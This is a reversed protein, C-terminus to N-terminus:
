RRSGARPGPRARARRPRRTGAGAPPRSRSPGGRAAPSRLRRSASASTSTSPRSPRRRRRLELRTPSLAASASRRGGHRAGAPHLELDVAGAPPQHRVLDHRRQPSSRADLEVTREKACTRAPAAAPPPVPRGSRSGDRAAVDRCAGGGPAGRRGRRERRRGDPARHRRQRAGADDVVRARGRLRAGAREGVAPPAFAATAARSAPSPSRRRRRALRREGPKAGSASRACAAPLSRASSRRAAQFSRARRPKACSVISSTSPAAPRPGSVGTVM